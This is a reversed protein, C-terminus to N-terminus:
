SYKLTFLTLDSKSDIGILMGKHQFKDSFNKSMWIIAEDINNSWFKFDLLIINYKYNHDFILQNISSEIIIFKNNEKSM